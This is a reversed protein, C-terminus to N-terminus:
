AKVVVNKKFFELFKKKLGWNERRISNAMNWRHAADRDQEDRLLIYTDTKLRSLDDLELEGSDVMEKATQGSVIPWGEQVRLERIRRAYEQIGSVVLFEESHLVEGVYKRFYFLIRDKAARRTPLDTPILSVGLDRLKHFAKVLKLVKSRLDDKKLNEEFDSFLQILETRLYEPDNRKPSRAM